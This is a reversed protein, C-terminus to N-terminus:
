CRTCHVTSPKRSPQTKGPYAGLKGWHRKWTDERNCGLALMEVSSRSTWYMMRKKGLTKIHSFCINFAFHGWRDELTGTRDRWSPVNWLLAEERIKTSTSLHLFALNKFTLRTLLVEDLSGTCYLLVFLHRSFFDDLPRKHEKAIFLM